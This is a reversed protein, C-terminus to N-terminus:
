ARGYDDELRVVDELETTSVEVWLSDTGTSGIRHTVNPAIFIPKMKIPVEFSKGNSYYGDGMVLFLTEIKKKHYQLSLRRRAKVFIEKVVYIGNNELIKEYGWPKETM